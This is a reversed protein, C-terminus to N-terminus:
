WSKQVEGLSSSYAIGGDGSRCCDMEWLTPAAALEGWGGAQLPSEVRAGRSPAESPVPPLRAEM